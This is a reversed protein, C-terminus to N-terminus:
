NWVEIVTNYISQLITIIGLIIMLIILIVVLYDSRKFDWKGNM